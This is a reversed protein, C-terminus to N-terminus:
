PAIELMQLSYEAIKEFAPAAVDGGYYPYGPEDVVVAILLEPRDAPLYGV